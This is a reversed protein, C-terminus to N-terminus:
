IRTRPRPRRRAAWPVGRGGVRAGRVTSCMSFLNTLSKPSYLPSIHTFLLSDSPPFLFVPFSGFPSVRLRRCRISPLFPYLRHIQKEFFIYPPKNDSFYIFNFTTEKEHIKRKRHSKRSLLACSFRPNPPIFFVLSAFNKAM